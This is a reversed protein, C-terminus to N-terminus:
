LRFYSTCLGVACPACVFVCVYVCESVCLCMCEGAGCHRLAGARAVASALGGFEERVPDHGAEGGRGAQGAHAALKCVNLAGINQLLSCLAPALECVHASRHKACSFAFHLPLNVFM